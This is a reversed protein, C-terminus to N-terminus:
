YGRAFLPRIKSQGDCYICKSGDDECGNPIVRIDAGNEEKIKEECSPNDCIPAKILMGKELESKFEGYTELTVTREDLIKKANAFMDDHMKDLQAIVDLSDYSTLSLEQKQGNDRRVLILQSKELDKPGLEVRIPVGKMEWDNFKFGPTVQDRDDLHARIGDRELKDKVDRSKELITEREEDSHYIPIIVVQIPAVRPPLVLGKDDGHVMIMGGILRWSVGWSTQWVFSEVNNKDAYKVEFPKSFNQGLFHTTGMQLAKGDPMLSEMTLTYVAGVFKEKESKRGTIVPIALEEEVTKKYIELIDTVEKEAEGKDTHATHGEQWLFESTRLFPKTGKIEARLASNWFNIKLPLDRWSRIWKAYMTYALTESTPRLALKDGIEGDGSHTVWFVEPNFGTFHDKEKGLLSEPILVPLFGNRHGTAALKSDLSSKLSEWISYGDPRLVILGKVPAYDALEAKIVVQTYWESFDDNKKVTIGAEKGM